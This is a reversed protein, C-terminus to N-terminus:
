AFTEGLRKYRGRDETKAGDSLYVNEWPERVCVCLCLCSMFCDIWEGTRPVHLFIARSSEGTHALSIRRGSTGGASLQCHHTCSLSPPAQRSLLYFIVSMNRRSPRQRRQFYCTEWGSRGIPLARWLPAVCLCNTCGRKLYSVKVFYINSRSTWKKLFFTCM